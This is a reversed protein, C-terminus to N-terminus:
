GREIPLCIGFDGVLASRLDLGGTCREQGDVLAINEGIQFDGPSCIEIIKTVDITGATEAAMISAMGRCGALGDGLIAVSPVFNDGHIFSRGLNQFGDPDSMLTTRCKPMANQVLQPPSPCPFNQAFHPAGMPEAAVAAAPSGGGRGAGAAACAAPKSSFT